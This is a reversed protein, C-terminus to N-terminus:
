FLQILSVLKQRAVPDLEKEALNLLDEKGELSRVIKPKNLNLPQFNGVMVRFSYIKHFDLNSNINKLVIEKIFTFEMKYASNPVILKLVNGDVSLPRSYPYLGAGVIKEWASELRGIIFLNRAKEEEKKILESYPGLDTPKLRSLM